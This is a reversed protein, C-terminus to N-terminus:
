RRPTAVAPGLGTLEAHGSDTLFPGAWGTFGHLGGLGAVLEPGPRLM